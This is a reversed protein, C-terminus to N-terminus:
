VAFGSTGHVLKCLCFLHSSFPHLAHSFQLHHPLDYYPNSKYISFIQEDAFQILVVPFFILNSLKLFM